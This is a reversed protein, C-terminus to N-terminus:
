RARIGLAKIRSALTTPKMELLAAAGGPGFVKGRAQTLATEISRKELERLQPRTLLDSPGVNAVAFSVLRAAAVDAMLHMADIDEDSMTVRSFLGLVGVVKGSAVLPLGAFAQVAQRAIWGPNSLWDEDGRLGRVILAEGTAAIKGIKGHGIAVRGFEGDVRAYSGGGLPRGASAALRLNGDPELLWLRALV